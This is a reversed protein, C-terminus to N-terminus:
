ALLYAFLITCSENAGFTELVVRWCWRYFVFGIYERFLDVRLGIIVILQSFMLGYRHDILNVIKGVILVGTM